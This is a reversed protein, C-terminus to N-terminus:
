KILFKDSLTHSNTICSFTTEPPPPPFGSAYFNFLNITSNILLGSQDAHYDTVQQLQDENTLSMLNLCDILSLGPGKKLM